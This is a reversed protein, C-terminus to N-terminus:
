EKCTEIQPTEVMQSVMKQMESDINVVIIKPVPKNSNVHELMYLSAINLCILVLILIYENKTIGMENYRHSFSM